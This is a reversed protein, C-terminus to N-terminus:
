TDRTPRRTPYGTDAHLKSSATLQSRRNEVLSPLEERLQRNHKDIQARSWSLYKEINAIQEDFNTRIAAPDNPPNDIVLHLEQNALKLVRPPNTSSTNARLTFVVREGEFPVVLVFRPVRRTM